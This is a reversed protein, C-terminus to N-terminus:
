NLVALGEGVDFFLKTVAANLDGHIGVLVECRSSISASNITEIIRLPACLVHSDAVLPASLTKSM